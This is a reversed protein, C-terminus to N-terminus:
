WGGYTNMHILIYDAKEQGALDFSKRALRWVEPGIEDKIDVKYVVKETRCGWAHEVLLDGARAFCADQVYIDRVYADDTNQLLYVFILKKIKDM